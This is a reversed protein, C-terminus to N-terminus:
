DRSTTPTTPVIRGRVFWGLAFTLIDGAVSIGRHLLAVILGVGEGLLLGLGVALIAERIGVGGPAGPVVFGAIWAVAFIGTTYALGVEAGPSAAEIVLLVSIGLVLFNAVHAAVPVLFWGPHTPVAGSRHIKRRLATAVIAVCLLGAGPLLWIANGITQSRVPELLARLLEPAFVAVSGALLAGSGILLATEVLVAVGIVASQVGDARALAFRGIFQAVNGPLYKGIQSLLVHCEARGPPLSISWARLTAKWAFAAIVQSLTYIVVSGGLAALIMPQTLDIPPITDISQWVVYGLLLVALAIGFPRLARM